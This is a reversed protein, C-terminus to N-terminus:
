PEEDEDDPPTTNPLGFWDAHGDLFLANRDVGYPGGPHFDEADLMIFAMHPKSEFFMLLENKRQVAAKDSHGADIMGFYFGIFYEYSIGLEDFLLPDSPCGYIDRKKIYKDLADMLSPAFPDVPLTQVEPILGHEHRYELLAGGIQRLNSLCVSRQASARAGSLAPLTIGVLLVILSIVLLLEVLTFGPRPATRRCAIRTEVM